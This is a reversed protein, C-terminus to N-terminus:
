RDALHFPMIITGERLAQPLNGEGLLERIGEVWSSVKSVDNDETWRRALERIIGDDRDLEGLLFVWSLALAAAFAQGVYFFANGGRAPLNKRAIEYRLRKIVQVRAAEFFILALELLEKDFDNEHPRLRCLKYISALYAKANFDPM